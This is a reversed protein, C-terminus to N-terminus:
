VRVPMWVYRYILYSIIYVPFLPPIACEAHWLCTNHMGLCADYMGFASFLLKVRNPSRDSRIETTNQDVSTMQLTPNKVGRSWKKVLRPLAPWLTVSERVSM